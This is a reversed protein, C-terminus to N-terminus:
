GLQYSRSRSAELSVGLERDPYDGLMRGRATPSGCGAASARRGGLFGGWQCPPEPVDIIRSAQPAPPRHNRGAFVPSCPIRNFDPVAGGSHGPMFSQVFPEGRRWQRSTRFLSGPSFAQREARFDSSRGAGINPLRGEHSPGATVGERKREGQLIETSASRCVAMPRMRQSRMTEMRRIADASNVVSPM